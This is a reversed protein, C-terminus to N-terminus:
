QNLTERETKKVREQATERKTDGHVEGTNIRICETSTLDSKNEVISRGILFFHLGESIDFLNHTRLSKINIQFFITVPGEFSLM